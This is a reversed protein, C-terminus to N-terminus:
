APADDVVRRRASRILAIVSILSLCMSVGLAIVYRWLGHPQEGVILVRADAPLEMRLNQSFYERVRRLESSPGFDAIRGEVHIRTFPQYKAYLADQDFEVYIPSGLLQRIQVPGRRLSGPRLGQITAAKNGLVGQLRVYTGIAPLAIGENSDVAGLEVLEQDSFHFRVEDIWDTALWGLAFVVTATLLIRHPSITRVRRGEQIEARMFDDLDDDSRRGHAQGM